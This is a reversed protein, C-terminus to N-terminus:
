ATEFDETNEVARFFERKVRAHRKRFDKSNAMEEEDGTAPLVTIIGKEESDTLYRIIKKDWPGALQIEAEFIRTGGHGYSHLKPQSASLRELFTKQRFDIGYRTKLQELAHTSVWLM